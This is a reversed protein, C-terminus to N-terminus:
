WSPTADSSLVKVRGGDDGDGGGMVALDVNFLSFARTPPEPQQQLKTLLTQFMAFTALKIQHKVKDTLPVSHASILKADKFLYRFLFLTTRKALLLDCKGFTDKAFSALKKKVFLNRPETDNCQNITELKWPEDNCMGVEGILQKM